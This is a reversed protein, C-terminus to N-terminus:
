ILVLSGISDFSIFPGGLGLGVKNEKCGILLALPSQYHTNKQKNNYTETCIKLQHKEIRQNSTIGHYYSNLYPKQFELNHFQMYACLFIVLSHRIVTGDFPNNSPKITHTASRTM